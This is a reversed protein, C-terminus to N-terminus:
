ESKAKKVISNYIQKIEDFTMMKKNSRSIQVTTQVSDKLNVKKLEKKEYISM